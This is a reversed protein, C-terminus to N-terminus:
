SMAKMAKLAKMAQGFVVGEGSKGFGNSKM